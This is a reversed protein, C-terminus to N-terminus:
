QRDRRHEGPTKLCPPPRNRRAARGDSITQSRRRGRPSVPAKAKATMSTPSMLLAADHFLLKLIESLPDIRDAGLNVRKQRLEGCGPMCMEGIRGLLVFGVKIRNLCLHQSQM